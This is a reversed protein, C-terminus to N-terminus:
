LDQMCKVSHGHLHGQDMKWTYNNLICDCMFSNETCSGFPLDRSLFTICSSGNLLNVGTICFYCWFTVLPIRAM